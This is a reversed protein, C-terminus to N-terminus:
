RRRQYRPHPLISICPNSVPQQFLTRTPQAREVRRLGHEHERKRTRGSNEIVNARVRDRSNRRQRRKLCGAPATLVPSTNHIFSGYPSPTAIWEPRSDHTTTRLPWQSANVPTRKPQTNLRSIARLSRPASATTPLPLSCGARRYRSLRPLKARDSVGLM